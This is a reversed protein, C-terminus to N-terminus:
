ASGLRLGAARVLLHLGGRMWRVSCPKLVALLHIPPQPRTSGLGRPRRVGDLTGLVGVLAMKSRVGGLHGPSFQAHPPPPVGSVMLGLAMWTTADVTFDASSLTPSTLNAWLHLATDWAGQPPTAEDNPTWFVLSGARFWIRSFVVVHFTFLWGLARRGFGQSSPSCVIWAM